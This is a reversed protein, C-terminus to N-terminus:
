RAPRAALPPGSFELELQADFHTFRGTFHSFWARM